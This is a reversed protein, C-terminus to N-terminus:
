AGDFGNLLLFFIIVGVLLGLLGLGAGTAVKRGTPVDPDLVPVALLAGILCSIVLAVPMILNEGTDSGDLFAASLPLTLAGLVVMVVALVLTRMRDSHPM